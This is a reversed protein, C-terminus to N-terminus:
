IEGWDEPVETEGIDCPVTAVAVESSEEVDSMVIPEWGEVSIVMDGTDRVTSSEVKFALSVRTLQIDDVKEGTFAVRLGWRLRTKVANGSSSM